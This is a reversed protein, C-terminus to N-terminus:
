KKLKIPLLLDLQIESDSWKVNSECANYVFNLHEELCGGMIEEGKHSYDADYQQNERVWKALWEWEHFNGMQIMHAAYLGGQFHKKRFPEPVEMDDPIAVWFEYGYDDRDRSPNPHNFGFVRADPKVQYLNSKLVFEMLRNGAKSEPGDGAEGNAKGFCHSAAVTCPPLHLVRVDTLRSLAESAKSLDNMSKEEKFNIKTLSLSNVANLMVEDSFLVTDLSIQSKSQLENIFNNLIARMTSLATIENEIESVNQMFIDTMNKTDANEFIMKIQKLSIRLKRLIIIQQLRSISQADYVRYAYADKKLSPLLGIQEYYRLMRTSIGFMRSVQGITALEM